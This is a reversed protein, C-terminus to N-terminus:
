VVVLATSQKKLLVEFYKWGFQRMELICQYGQTGAFWTSLKECNRATKKSGVFNGDPLHVAVRVSQGGGSDWRHGASYMM